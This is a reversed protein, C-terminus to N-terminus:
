FLMCTLNNDPHMDQRESIQREQKSLYANCILGNAYPIIGGDLAMGPNDDQKEKSTKCIEMAYHMDGAPVDKGYMDKYIKQFDNLLINMGLSSYNKTVFVQSESVIASYNPINAQAAVLQEPTINAPLYIKTKTENCQVKGPFMAQLAEIFGPYEEKTEIAILTKSQNAGISKFLPPLADQGNKEWLTRGSRDNLIQQLKPL